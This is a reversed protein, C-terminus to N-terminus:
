HIIWSEETFVKWAVTIVNFNWQFCVNIKIFYGVEVSSSYTENNPILPMNKTCGTFDVLDYFVGASIIFISTM